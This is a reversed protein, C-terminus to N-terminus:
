GLKTQDSAPFALRSIVAGRKQCYQNSHGTFEHQRSEVSAFGKLSRYFIAREEEHREVGLTQLIHDPLAGLCGECPLANGCSRAFQHRAYNGAHERQTRELQHEFSESNAIQEPSPGNLVELNPPADELSSLLSPWQPANAGTAWVIRQNLAVLSWLVKDRFSGSPQYYGHFGEIKFNLSPLVAGKEELAQFKQWLWPEGIAPRKSMRFLGTAFNEVKAQRKTEHSKQETFQDKLCYSLVYNMGGQDPEQFTVYGHTWLSWNLRLKKNGSTLMDARDTVTVRQGNKLRQVTGLSCLDVSSYIIAHWHCRGNRDGQEGACLFRVVSFPPNKPYGELAEPNEKALKERKEVFAKETAYRVAARLRHLFSRFDSYNFMAAADRNDQTDDNYTMGLVLCHPHLTKEMMARAVWNHRRTAICDDCSRCAFTNGDRTIPRSCM